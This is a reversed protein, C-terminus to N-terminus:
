ERGPLVLTGPNFWESLDLREARRAMMFLRANTRQEIHMLTFGQTQNYRAVAEFHCHRRVWPAGLRAARDVAWWAMLTGPKRDRLDPHTVSGSLYLAPEARETDTWGWPPGVDQVLMQGVVGREDDDLVWM